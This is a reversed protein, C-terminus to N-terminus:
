LYNYIFAPRPLENSRILSKGYASYISNNRSGLSNVSLTAGLKQHQSDSPGGSLLRHLQQQASRAM